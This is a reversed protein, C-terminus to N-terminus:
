VRLPEYIENLESVATEILELNELSCSERKFGDIFKNEISLTRKLNSEISLVKAGDGSFIRADLIIGGIKELVRTHSVFRRKPFNSIGFKLFIQGLAMVELIYFYGTKNIDYGGGTGCNCPIKGAVLNSRDSVFTEGTCSSCSVNWLRSTRTQREFRYQHEPFMGTARFRKIWEEDTTSSNIGRSVNACSPCGRDKMYNNISCTNWNTKCINCLFSCKTNQNLKKSPIFGKFVHNNSKAKRSIIIEWQEKSWKPVKSCGCPLQGCRLYKKPIEYIADGYLEKDQKCIQCEVKYKNRSNVLIDLILLSNNVGCIEGIKYDYM